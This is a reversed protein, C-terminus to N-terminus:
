EGSCSCSAQPRRLLRRCLPGSTGVLDDFLSELHEDIQPMSAGGPAIGLGPVPGADKDLHWVLQEATLALAQPELKGCVPSYPTPITKRGGCGSAKSLALASTERTISSSPSAPPVQRARRAAPGHCAPVRNGSGTGACRGLRRRGRFCRARGRAVPACARRKDALDNLMRHLVAAECLFLGVVKVNAAERAIGNHVLAQEHGVLNGAEVQVQLFRIQDTGKCQDMRAEAGIRQAMPTEGMGVPVQGMVALYVGKAAVQFQICARSAINSDGRKPSSMPLTGGTIFGPSLSVALKSLASSSSRIVPRSSSWAMSM